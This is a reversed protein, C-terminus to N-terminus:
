DGNWALIGALSHESRDKQKQLEGAIDPPKWGEPKMVKGDSRKPGGVKQMNARHIARAIPGGNIGFELRTGEVVYDLDGLGDALQELDVKVAAEAIIRQIAESASHWEDRALKNGVASNGDFMSQITERLEEFILSARLRVRSDSPVTPSELIPQGLTRHFEILQGQLEGDYAAGGIRSTKEEGYWKRRANSTEDFASLCHMLFKALIFDPTDSGNEACHRNITSAIEEELTGM